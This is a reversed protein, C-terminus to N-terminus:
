CYNVIPVNHLIRLSLSLPLVELLLIQQATAVASASATDLVLLGMTPLMLLDNDAVISKSPLSSSTKASLVVYNLHSLLM